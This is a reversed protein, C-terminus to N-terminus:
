RARALRDAREGAPHLRSLDLGLDVHLVAQLVRRRRQSAQEFATVVALLEQADRLLHLGRASEDMLGIRVPAHDSAKESGQRLGSAPPERVQRRVFMVRPLGAQGRGRCVGPVGYLRSCKSLISSTLAGAGEQPPPCPHPTARVTSIISHAMALKDRLVARGGGRDEGVLPTSACRLSGRM